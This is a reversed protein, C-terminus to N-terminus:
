TSLVIKAVVPNIRGYEGEVEVLDEGEVENADSPPNLKKM